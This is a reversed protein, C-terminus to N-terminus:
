HGTIRPELMRRPMARIIRDVLKGDKFVLLT